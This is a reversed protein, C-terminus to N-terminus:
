SIHPCYRPDQVRHVRIAVEVLDPILPLDGFVTSLMKVRVGRHHQRHEIRCQIRGENGPRYPRPSGLERLNNIPRVYYGNNAVMVAVTSKLGDVISTVTASENVTSGGAVIQAIAGM